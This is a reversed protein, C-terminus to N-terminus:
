WLGLTAVIMRLNDVLEDDSFVISEILRRFIAKQGDGGKDKKRQMVFAACIQKATESAETLRKQIEGPRLGMPWWPLFLATAIFVIQMGLKTPLASGAAEALEHPSTMTELDEGLVALGITDLTAQDALHLVEAEFDNDLDSATGERRPADCAEHFCLTRDSPEALLRSERLLLQYERRVLAESLAQPSTLLLQDAHWFGQLYILGENPSTTMWELFQRM